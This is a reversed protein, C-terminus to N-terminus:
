TNDSDFLHYREAQYNFLRRFLTDKDTLDNFTGNEVLIGENFVLIRDALYITSLRHSSFIVIKGVCRKEIYDFVVKEAEPDLSASPEDLIYIDKNGYLSRAIAIKQQQGESFELGNEDFARGIGCKLDSRCMSIIDTGGCKKLIEEAYEKDMQDSNMTINELLSFAFNKGNQFYIGYSKRLSTIDYEKINRGNILIEGKNVDYLRLILKIITSKGAGNLGVLAFKQKESIVFSVNKLIYKEDGKYSFYVHNFEIKKIKDIVLSGSRISQFTIEDLKMINEIRLSNDYLNSMNSVFQEMGSSLQGLIGLYWIYDGATAVGNIIQMCVQVSIGLIALETMCSFLCYIGGRKKLIRKKPLFMWKFINDYKEKLFHGLGYCRIEQAYEKQTGVGSIYDQMRLSKLQKLDYEYLIKMFKKSAVSSPIGIVLMIIAFFVNKSGLLLFASGFSIFDGLCQSTMWVINQMAGSDRRVARLGDYYQPNDYMAIDADVARELMLSNVKYDLVDRQITNAYSDVSRALLMLIKILATIVCLFLIENKLHNPQTSNVAYIRDTLFKLTYTSAILLLPTLITSVMRIATYFGSSKWSFKICYILKKLFSSINKM